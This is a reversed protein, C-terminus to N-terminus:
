PFRSLTLRTPRTGLDRVIQPGCSPGGRNAPSASAHVALHGGGIRVFARPRSARALAEIVITFDSQSCTRSLVFCPKGSSSAKLAAVMRTKSLILWRHISIPDTVQNRAFKRAIRFYDRLARLTKGYGRKGPTLHATQIVQFPPHRRM